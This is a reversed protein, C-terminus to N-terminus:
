QVNTMEARNTGKNKQRERRGAGVGDQSGFVIKGRAARAGDLCRGFGVDAPETMRGMTAGAFHRQPIMRHGRGAVNWIAARGNFGRDALGCTRGFKAQAAM